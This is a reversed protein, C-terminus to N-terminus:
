VGLFHIKVVAFTVGLALIFFVFRVGIISLTQAVKCDVYDELVVQLGLAAHYCTVMFFLIVGIAAYPSALWVSIKLLGTPLLGVLSYIMWSVLPIMGLATIRQMWWHHTGEGAAGYGKVKVMPTILRM